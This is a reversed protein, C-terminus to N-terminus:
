LQKYIQDLDYVLCRNVSRKTDRLSIEVGNRYVQIITGKLWKYKKNIGWWRGPWPIKVRMGAKLESRLIPKNNKMNVVLDLHFLVKKM